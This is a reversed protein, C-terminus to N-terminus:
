CEADSEEQFTVRISAAVCPAAFTGHGENLLVSVNDDKWSAVALDADGDGDLDGIALSLPHNGAGYLVNDGFLSTCDATAM